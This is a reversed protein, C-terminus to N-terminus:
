PQRPKRKKKFLTDVGKMVQEVDASKLKGEPFAWNARVKHKEYVM